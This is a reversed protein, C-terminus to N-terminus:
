PIRDSFLRAKKAIQATERIIQQFGKIVVNLSATLVGSYVWMKIIRGILAPRASRLRSCRGGKILNSGFNPSGKRM